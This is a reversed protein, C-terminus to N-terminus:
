FSGALVFSESSLISCIFVDGPPDDVGSSLKSGWHESRKYGWGKYKYLFVRHRLLNLRAAYIPPLMSALPKLR